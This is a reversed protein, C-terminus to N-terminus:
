KAEKPGGETSCRYLMIKKYLLQGFIDPILWFFGGTNGALKQTMQALIHGMIPSRESSGWNFM